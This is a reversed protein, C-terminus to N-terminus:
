EGRMREYMKEAVVFDSTIEEGTRMRSNWNIVQSRRAALAMVGDLTEGSSLEETEDPQLDGKKVKRSGM